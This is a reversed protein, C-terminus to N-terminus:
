SVIFNVDLIFIYTHHQLVIHLKFADDNCKDRVYCIYTSEHIFLFCLAKLMQNHHRDWTVNNNNHTASKHNTWIGNNVFESVLKTRRPKEAAYENRRRKIIHCSSNRSIFLRGYWWKVNNPPPRQKPKPKPKPGEEDMQYVCFIAFRTSYFIM